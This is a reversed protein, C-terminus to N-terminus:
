YRVVSAILSAVAGMSAQYAAIFRVINMYCVFGFVQRYLDFDNELIAALYNQYSIMILDIKENM